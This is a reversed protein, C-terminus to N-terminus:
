TVSGDTGQESLHACGEDTAAWGRPGGERHCGFPSLCLVFSLRFRRGCSRNGEANGWLFQEFGRVWRCLWPASLSGAAALM